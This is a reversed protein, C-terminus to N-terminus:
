IWKVEQYLGNGVPIHSNTVQGNNLVFGNPAHNYTDKYHLVCQELHHLRDEYAKKPVALDTECNVITQLLRNAISQLLTADLDPQTQLTIQITHPSLALPAPTPALHPPLQIPNKNSSKNSANYSTVSSM